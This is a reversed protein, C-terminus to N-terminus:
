SDAALLLREMYKEFEPNIAPGFDVMGNKSKISYNPNPKYSAIKGNSIEFAGIIDGPPVEGAPEPTRQDIIYLWGSRQEKAKNLFKSMGSLVDLCFNHVTDKFDRNVKLSKVVYEFLDGEALRPDDVAGVILEKPLGHKTVLDEPLFTYYFVKEGGIESEIVNGEM